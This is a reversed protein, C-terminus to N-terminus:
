KNQSWDDQKFPPLKIKSINNKFFILVSAEIFTLNNSTDNTQDLTIQWTM